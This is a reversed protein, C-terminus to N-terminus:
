NTEAAAVGVILAIVAYVTDRAIENEINVVAVSEADASEAAAVIM